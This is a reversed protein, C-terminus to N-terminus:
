IIDFVIKGYKNFCYIMALCLQGCNEQDFVEENSDDHIQMWNKHIWHKSLSKYPRHFSDYFYTIDDDGRMLAVWHMGDHKSDDTNLIVSSNPYKLEQMAYDAPLVAKFGKGIYRKGAKYLINNDTIRSGIDSM